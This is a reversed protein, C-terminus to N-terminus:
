KIALDGKAFDSRKQQSYHRLWLGLSVGRWVFSIDEGQRYKERLMELNIYNGLTGPNQFLLEEVQQREIKLLGRKFNPTFDMKSTRWQIQKPVIGAMARRMVVRTWGQSLKQQPPLSYCFEVLRKDWFPYRVEINFASTAKDEIELVLPHFGQTLVRYHEGKSSNKSGFEVKRWERIRQQINARAAFDSAFECNDRHTVSVRSSPTPSKIVSLLRVLKTWTKTIPKLLKWRALRRQIAYAHFYTWFGRWVPEGYIRAVGAAEKYFELWRGAKALDHLYGSGHSVTSDGDHGELLVRVGSQKALNCLGWSMIAYNPAFFAEDLHWYISDIDTIPTRLDGAMFHPKFGSQSLVPNIYEREDCEKVEDFVASFTHLLQPELQQSLINRAVCSVFSSDLGGSLNSGIPFASRLRCRVAETFLKLFEEAYERDSKPEAELNPDLSWYCELETGFRDVTLTHAPPLRWIDQYFTRDLADFDGILYDAIKAEELQRPVQCHCFLAKIESGFVFVDDSSHYYFPKIGFHDRACFLRQREEDWIAFAFAGLLHHPCDTGWQRYGLLILDSDTIKSCDRDGYGLKELLEERNDIRADATIAIGNLEQPLKELLSEPTTWLLRNLLGIQAEQWIGADDKGRHALIELMENLTDRNVPQQNRNYIGAIASM